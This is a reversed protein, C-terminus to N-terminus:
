RVKATVIRNEAKMIVEMLILRLDLPRLMRWIEFSNSVVLALSTARYSITLSMSLYEPNFSSRSEAVRWVALSMPTFAHEM